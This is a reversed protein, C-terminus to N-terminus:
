DLVIEECLPAFGNSYLFIIKTKTAKGGKLEFNFPVTTKAPISEKHAVCSIMKSHGNVEEYQVVYAIVGLSAGSTSIDFSITTDGALVKTTYKGNNVLVPNSIAGQETITIDDIYIETGIGWLSMNFGNYGAKVTIPLEVKNWGNEAETVVPTGWEAWDGYSFNTGKWSTGTYYFSVIYSRSEMICGYLELKAYGGYQDVATVKLAQEGSYVTDTTLEWTGSNIRIEGHPRAGEETTDDEGEFDIVTAPGSSERTTFTISDSLVGGDENAIGNITITYTKGPLVSSLSAKVTTANLLEIATVSAGFGDITISNELTSEDIPYGVTFYLANVPTLVDTAGDAISSSKIETDVAGAVPMVFSAPVETERGYEDTVTLTFECVSDFAVGTLDVTFAHADEAIESGVTAMGEPSVVAGIAKVKLTSEFAVTTVGAKYTVDGTATLTTAAPEGEIEAFVFNDFYVPNGNTNNVGSRLLHKNGDEGSLEDCTFIGEVKTWEGQPVKTSLAGISSKILLTSVTVDTDPSYVYYSLYYRKGTEVVLADSFYANGSGDKNTNIFFGRNATDEPNEDVYKLAAHGGNTYEASISVKDTSKMGTMGATSLNEFDRTITTVAEVDEPVGCTDLEADELKAFEFDDIYGYEGEGLGWVGLSFYINTRGDGVDSKTTLTYYAKYWKGAEKGVFTPTTFSAFQAQTVSTSILTASVQDTESYYWFSVYYTTDPELTLGTKYYFKGFNSGGASSGNIRMSGNSNHGFAPEHEVTHNADSKEFGLQATPEYPTPVGSEFDTYEYYGEAAEFDAPLAQVSVLAFSLAMAMVIIMSIIRKTTKM